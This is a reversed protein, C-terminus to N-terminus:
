MWVKLKPYKLKFKLKEWFGLRHFFLIGDLHDIEHQLIQASMGEAKINIEAGEINQADVEVEEAREINLFINPFSLCGEEMKISKLGRKVIIPNVLVSVEPDNPDLQVTILRKVIGVQPAALGVGKSELMTETMDKAIKVIEPTIESVPQCKKRLITDNYKKIKLIM